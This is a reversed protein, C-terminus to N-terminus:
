MANNSQREKCQKCQMTKTQWVQGQQTKIKKTPKMMMVNARAKSQKVQRQKRKSPKATNWPHHPPEASPELPEQATPPVALSHNSAKNPTLHNCPTLCANRGRPKVMGGCLVIFTAHQHRMSFPFVHHAPPPTQFSNKWKMEQVRETQDFVEVQVAVLWKVDDNIRKQGIDCNAQSTESQTPGSWHPFLPHISSPDIALGYCSSPCCPRESVYSQAKACICQM